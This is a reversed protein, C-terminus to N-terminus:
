RSGDRENGWERYVIQGQCNFTLPWSWLYEPWCLMWSVQKWHKVDPRGISERGKRQILITGGMGSIRNSKSFELYITLTLPWPWLYVLLCLMWNVWKRKTECWNSLYFVSKFNQSCFDNFFAGILNQLSQIVVKDLDDLHTGFSKGVSM